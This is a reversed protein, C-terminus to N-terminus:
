PKWPYILLPTGPQVYSFNLMTTEPTGRRHIMEMPKLSYRHPVFFFFPSIFILYICVAQM